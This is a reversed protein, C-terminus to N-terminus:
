PDSNIEVLVAQVMRRFAYEDGAYRYTECTFLTVWDLDKHQMVADVASPLILRNDRVKYRYELGWAHIAIPDDYRLQKLDVFLGPQNNADWVHATLVTNGQWTPFASGELYGVRDGLWTVDWNDGVAPVSMIPAQVGLSPLELWLDGLATYAKEAPREPLRTIRGPAFGTDPLDAPPVYEFAGIDCARGAPYPRDADRQDSTVTTGCDNVHLPIQNIAPSSRRLARTQTEGGNNALPRLRPDIPDSPTGVQDNSGHTFTCAAENGILNYDGSNFTGSCDPGSAGASNGALITNKLTPTNATEGTYMGGGSIGASNDSITVYTLFPYSDTSNWMGGGDGTASNGSFTVNTLTLTSSFNFMGGGNYAINGSFTVGTLTPSSGFGNYMGGGAFTATNGSFTVDSLMPSSSLNHMGGGFDYADNEEFTVNTLSPSSGTNYMGGGAGGAESAGAVNKIFDVDTLTPDSGDNYMGGGDIWAYNVEFTVNTLTPNSGSTNYMGGGDGEYSYNNIFDTNILTPSSGTNYIGGGGGTYGFESINSDFKVDTLMPQSGDNYMGGGNTAAWNSLLTVNTLTPNSNSANYMGGGDGGATGNGDGIGAENEIFEVSTLTPSSGNNNYMGGGDGGGDTNIALNRFFIVNTLTPDSANNNYMGGGNGDRAWNFAFFVDTLSPSSGNNNYMGGGDGYFSARNLTFTVETLTPSSAHNCMGGGRILARNNIFNVETLEPDSYYNYIGGGFSAHNRRFNVNELVVEGTSRNFIGGGLFVDGGEAITLDTITVDYPGQEIEFVRNNNDGNIFLSNKGPGTITLSKDITLQDDLWITTPLPTLNFDITDGSSAYKIAERLSCHTPNCTGDDNDGTSNVTLPAAHGVVVPQAGLLLALCFLIALWRTGPSARLTRTAISTHNPM